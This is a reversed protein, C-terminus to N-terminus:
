LIGLVSEFTIPPADASRGLSLNMRAQLGNVHDLFGATLDGFTYRRGDEDIESAFLTAQDRRAGHQSAHALFWRYRNMAENFQEQLEYFRWLYEFRVLEALESRAAEAGAAAGTLMVDIAREILRTPAACVRGTQPRVLNGNAEAFAVVQAATTPGPGARNVLDVAASFVGRSAKFLSAVMTPLGGHRPLPAQGRRFLVLPLTLGMNSVDVLGQRTARNAPQLAQYGEALWAFGDLLAGTDRRLAEYASANMLGGSRSPSDEYTSPVSRMPVGGSEIRKRARRPASDELLLRGAVDTEDTVRLMEAIRLGRRLGSTGEPVAQQRATANSPRRQAREPM